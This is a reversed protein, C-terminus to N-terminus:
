DAHLRELERKMGNVIGNVHLLGVVAVCRTRVQPDDKRDSVGAARSGPEVWLAGLEDSSICCSDTPITLGTGRIELRWRRLGDEGMDEWLREVDVIRVEEELVADVEVALPPQPPSRFGELQEQQQQQEQELQLLGTPLETGHPAHVVALQLGHAVAGADKLEDMLHLFRPEFLSLQRADGELLPRRVTFLPMWNGPTNTNDSNINTTTNNTNTTQITTTPLPPDQPPPNRWSRPLSLPRKRVPLISFLGSSRSSTGANSDVAAANTRALAAIALTEASLEQTGDVCPAPAVGAWTGKTWKCWAPKKNPQRMRQVLGGLSFLQSVMYEDRSRLFSICFSSCMVMALVAGLFTILWDLIGVADWRQLGKITDTTPDGGLLLATISAVVTGAFGARALPMLRGGGDSVLATPVAVGVGRVSRSEAIPRAS